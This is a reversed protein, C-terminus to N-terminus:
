LSTYKRIENEAHTWRIIFLFIWFINMKMKEQHEYHDKNNKIKEGESGQVQVM